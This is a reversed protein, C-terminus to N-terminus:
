LLTPCCSSGTGSRKCSRSSSSVASIITLSSIVAGTWFILNTRAPRRDLIFFFTASLWIIVLVIM